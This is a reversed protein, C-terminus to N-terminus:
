AATGDVPLTGATEVHLETLPMMKSLRHVWTLTNQLRSLLSPPLWGDPHTRNDFRHKRYRTKRYRRRRRMQRRKTMAKKIANGRHNIVLALGVARSGDPDDRTIAIGTHKARPDTPRHTTAIQM